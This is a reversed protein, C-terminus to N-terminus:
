KSKFILGRHHWPKDNKFAYVQLLALMALTCLTGLLAGVVVDNFFHQALYIRSYAAILAIFFLLIGAKKNRWQLALFSYLAFASAAHGSPFSNNFHVTVGEVLRIDLGLARFHGAPRMIDDFLLLKGMQTVLLVLFFCCLAELALRYNYFLLLVVVLLAFLGDGLHTILPFLKDALPGYWQNFWLFSQTKPVGAMIALGIFVFIGFPGYFGKNAALLKLMREYMSSVYSLIGFSM